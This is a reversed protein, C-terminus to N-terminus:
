VTREDEPRLISEKKVEVWAKFDPTLCYPTAGGKVASKKKGRAAALVLSLSLLICVAVVLLFLKRKMFVRRSHIIYRGESPRTVGSSIRRIRAGIREHLDPKM